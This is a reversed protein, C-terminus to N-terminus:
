NHILPPPEVHVIGTEPGRPRMTAGPLRGRPDSSASRSWNGVLVEGRLDTRVPGCGPGGLPSRLLGFGDSYVPTVDGSQDGLGLLRILVELQRLPRPRFELIVAPPRHLLGRGRLIATRRLQRELQQRREVVEIPREGM